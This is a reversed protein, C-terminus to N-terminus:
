KSASSVLIDYPTVRVPSTEPEVIWVNRDKFYELLPQLSMGPIERAWVIKAGDIDAGNYVWEDHISHRTPSYRVIALQRGPLDQLERLVRQRAPNIPRNFPNYANGSRLDASAIPTLLAAIVVARTLGLGVLRGEFRWRRMYRLAQILIVFLVAMAPAFYHPQFWVVALVGAVCFLLQFVLFRTRRNRLVPWLALFPLAMAPGLFFDYSWGLKHMSIEVPRERAQRATTREFVNYFADFQRNSYEM